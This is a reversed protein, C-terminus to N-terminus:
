GDRGGHGNPSHGNSAPYVPIRELTLQHPQNQSAGNSSAAPAQTFNGQWDQSPAFWEDAQMERWVLASWDPGRLTAMLARRDKQGRGSSNAERIVERLANAYSARWRQSKEPDSTEAQWEALAQQYAQENAHRNRLAELILREGIIAMFLVAAPPAATELVSWIGAATLSVEPQSITWNGIFAMALGLGIPVAMLWRDRGKFYIRQAITSAIVMFEALLFASVGVISAQWGVAITEAFHDRGATFIRFVSVNAAATFVILLMIAVGWTLWRPYDSQAHNRFQDRQPRPGYARIVYGRARDRADLRQEETLPMLGRLADQQSITMNSYTATPTTM